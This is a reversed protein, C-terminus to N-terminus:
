IPDAVMCKEHLVATIRYLHRDKKKVEQPIIRQLIDNSRQLAQRQVSEKFLLIDDVEARTRSDHLKNIMDIFRAKYATVLEATELTACEFSVKYLLTSAPGDGDRMLNTFADDFVVYEPYLPITDGEDVEVAEEDGSFRPAILFFYVSLGGGIAVLLGVVMMILGLKGGSKKDDEVEEVVEEDAM